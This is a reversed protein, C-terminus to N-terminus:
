GDVHTEHFTPVTLRDKYARYRDLMTEIFNWPNEAKIGLDKLTLAGKRPVQDSNYYDLEMSGFFPQRQHDGVKCMLRAVADPTRVLKMALYKNPDKVASHIHKILRDLDYSEPGALEYIKGLTPENIAAMVANGLDTALMPAYKADQRLFYPVFPEWYRMHDGFRNIFRDSAGICPALRFITAKPLVELVADEGRKRMRLLESNSNEDAGIMSLHIYRDVGADRAIRAINAAHKVNVEEATFNRTNHNVGICNIVINSHMVATEISRDERITFRLPVIQGVDGCLKLDKIHKEEGRYPLIVQAGARGLKNVVYRGLFGSTGFVTAVDGRRGRQLMNAEAQKLINMPNM